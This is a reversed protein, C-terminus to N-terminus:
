FADPNEKKYIRLADDLEKLIANMEKRSYITAGSAQLHGGGRYHSAIENIAVRRSRLRCRIEKSKDQGNKDIESELMQDVFAVWILSGKISSLSNVLNAADEKSVGYKKMMKETFYIYAVGSPTTKFHTLVYGELKTTSLDEVYLREYIEQIDLGQDVLYGANELVRGDVGRYRFRGTDTTIGFYLAYAAEKPMILNEWTKFMSVIISSCAPSTPDVYSLDGFEESDDHHDIKIIYNGKQWREDHIREKNSTDVVIVLSTAYLEDSVSDPTGITSLYEPIDDGVAYVKKDKFNQKIIEKLGMQSGICDGDPRIHRHIIITDYEKIKNLIDLFIKNNM